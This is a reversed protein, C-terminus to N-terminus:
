VRVGTKKAYRAEFNFDTLKGDIEGVWRMLAPLRYRAAIPLRYNVRHALVDRWPEPTKWGVARAWWMLYWDSGAQLAVFCNAGARGRQTLWVRQEPRMGLQVRSHMLPERPFWKLELWFSFPKDEHLPGDPNPPLTGSDDPVGPNQDRHHWVHGGAGRLVTDVARQFNRESM